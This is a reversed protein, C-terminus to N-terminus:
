ALKENLKTFLRAIDKKLQRLDKLSVSDGSSRKIRLLVLQKKKEAIQALVSKKDVVEKNKSM